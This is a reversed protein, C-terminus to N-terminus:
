LSMVPIDQKSENNLAWNCSELNFLTKGLPGIRAEKQKNEDKWM